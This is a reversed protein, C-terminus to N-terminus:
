AAKNAEKLEKSLANVKRTLTAIKKNLADVDSRTPINLGHLVAEVRTEFGSQTEEVTKEVQERRNTFLANIADRSEKELVAGNEVLKETFTAVNEQANGAFDQANEALKVIGDQALAVVGLSAQFAKHAADVISNMENELIEENVVVTEAM